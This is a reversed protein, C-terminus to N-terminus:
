GLTSLITSKHGNLTERVHQAAAKFEVEAQRLEHEKAQAEGRLQSAKTTQELVQGQLSTIRETLRRIEDNAAATAQEAADAQRTLGGVETQIKANLAQSFRMEEGDVDSLHIAVADAIEKPSRGGGAKHAAKLRMVQDPIVDALNDSQALLATLATNRGFTAKEIAQVMAPNLTSSSAPSTSGNTAQAAVPKQTPTSTTEGEEELVLGKIAKLFSM